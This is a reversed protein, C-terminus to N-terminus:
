TGRNGYLEMADYQLQGLNNEAFPPLKRLFPGFISQVAIHSDTNDGSFALGWM